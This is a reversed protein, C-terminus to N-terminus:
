IIALQDSGCAPPRQNYRQMRKLARCETFPRGDSHPFSMPQGRVEEYFCVVLTLPIITEGRKHSEYQLCQINTFSQMHSYLLMVPKHSFPFKIQFIMGNTGDHTKDNFQGVGHNCKKKEREALLLPFM